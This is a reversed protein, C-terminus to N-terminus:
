VHVGQQREEQRMLALSSDGVARLFSESVRREVGGTILQIDFHQVLGAILRGDAGNVRLDEIAIKALTAVHIENINAAESSWIRDGYQAPIFKLADIASGLLSVKGPQPPLTGHYDIM